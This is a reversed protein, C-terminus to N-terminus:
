GQAAREQDNLPRFRLASWVEDVAVQTIPRVGYDAMLRWLSDRNLAIRNGKPYLLWLARPSGLLERNVEAFARLGAEDDVLVVAVDAAALSSASTVAEPMEGLLDSRDPHSMWVSSGPRILLKQAVSRAAM